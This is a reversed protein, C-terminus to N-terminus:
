FFCILLTLLFEVPQHPLHSLNYLAGLVELGQPSASSAIHTTRLLYYWDPTPYPIYTM